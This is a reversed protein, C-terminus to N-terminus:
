AERGAAPRWLTRGGETILMGALLLLAVAVVGNILDVSPLWGADAITALGTRAQLALSWLTVAMVFFMPVLTYWYRRGTRRLWVSVALLTLAALLQNSTGFLTWFIRYSGEGALWLCVAPPIITLATAAIAGARSSWGFLEQLVYRGLRTNVDLTDFVFTSFAMAGFTAAFALHQEGVLLTL